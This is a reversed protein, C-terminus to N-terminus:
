LVSGGLTANHDTTVASSGNAAVVLMGARHAVLHTSLPPSRQERADPNLACRSAVGLDGKGQQNGLVKVWCRVRQKHVWGLQRDWYVSREVRSTAAPRENAHTFRKRGGGDNVHERAGDGLLLAGASHGGGEGAEMSAGDKTEKEGWSDDVGPAPAAHEADVAAQTADPEEGETAQQCLRRPLVGLQQLHKFRWPQLGGAIRRALAVNRVTGHQAGARHLSQHKRVQGM